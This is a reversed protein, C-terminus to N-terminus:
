PVPEEEPHSRALAFGALGVTPGTLPLLVFSPIAALALLGVFSLRAILRGVAGRAVLIGVVYVAALVTYAHAILPFTLGSWTWWRGYVAMLPIVAPVSIALLGMVRFLRATNTSTYFRGALDLVLLVLGLLWVGYFLVIM